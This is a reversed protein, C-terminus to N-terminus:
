VIHALVKDYDSHSGIWFWIWHDETRVALARHSLGVRASYVPQRTGQIRELNLGPYSPDAKFRHYANDAERQVREPLTDYLAKFQRTRLSRM